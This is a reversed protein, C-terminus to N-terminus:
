RGLHTRRLEKPKQVNLKITNARQGVKVANFIEPKRDPNVGRPLPDRQLSGSVPREDQPKASTTNHLQVVANIV